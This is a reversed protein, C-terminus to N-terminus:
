RKLFAGVAARMEPSKFRIALEELEVKVAEEFSREEGAQILKKSALVAGPPHEAIERAIQMVEAEFSENPFVRTIFGWANLTAADIRAGRLIMENTRQRGILRPFTFSGGYEISLGLKSFPTMFESRESAYVMDFYPLITVAMGVALGDVAAILPKPFGLLHGGLASVSEPMKETMAVEMLISVDIGASFVGGRGTFIVARIEDRRSADELAEILAGVIEKTLCNKKEPRNIAITRVGGDDIIELEPHEM